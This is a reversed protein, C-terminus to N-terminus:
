FQATLQEIFVQARRTKRFEPKYLLFIRDHYVPADPVARILRHPLTKAIREPLIAHGAGAVLLQSIVELSSSEIHNAFDMKKASMKRLIEQIQILSPDFILVDSNKLNKPRWLTVVDKCLEKMVLDLHTVPNVAIAIDLRDSVVDETIHRSLGHSLRFQIQPFAKLFDPLLPVLTYSAVASHCGLRITGKPANSEDFISQELHEWARELNEAGELLKRGAATLEVGKKSRTFLQAGLTQETKKLSHSLAPQSLGLRQAAKSVHGSKAVALFYRIDAPSIM